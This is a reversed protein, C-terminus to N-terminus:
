LNEQEDQGLYRPNPVSYPWSFSAARAFFVPFRAAINGWFFVQQGTM